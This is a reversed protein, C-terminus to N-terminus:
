SMQGQMPRCTLWVPAKPCNMNSPVFQSSSFCVNLIRKLSLAMFYFSDRRWILFSSGGYAGGEFFAPNEYDNTIRRKYFIFFLFSKVDKRKTASARSSRVVELNHAQRAVLQEM